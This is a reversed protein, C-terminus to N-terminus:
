GNDSVQTGQCVPTPKGALPKHAAITQWIRKKPLTINLLANTVILLTFAYFGSAFSVNALSSLKVLTVLVGVLYVEVMNWPALQLIIRTASMGVVPMKGHSLPWVVSLLGLYKVLPFTLVLALVTIALATTKGHAIDFVSSILTIEQVRGATEMSLFPLLIAPFYIILSTLLLAVSSSLTREDHYLVQQCRPCVASHGTEIDVTEVLLDCHTCAIQTMIEASASQHFIM